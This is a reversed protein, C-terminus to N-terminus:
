WGSAFKYDLVSNFSLLVTPGLCLSRGHSRYSSNANDGHEPLRSRGFFNVDTVGGSTRSM